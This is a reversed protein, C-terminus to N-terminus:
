CKYSKFFKRNVRNMICTEVNCQFEDVAQHKELHLNLEVDVSSLDTGYAAKDM